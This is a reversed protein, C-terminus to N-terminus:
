FGIEELLFKYWELIGKLFRQDRTQRYTELLGLVGWTGEATAVRGRWEPNPYDWAGDDRQQALMYESCRLAIERYTEEGTRAFLEWNGLVWYGQGQLYYLNDKWFKRGFYGKIFRGIRYNFRIGPDPGILAQGQWHNAVLYQNLKLGAQFSQLM